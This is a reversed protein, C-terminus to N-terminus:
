VQRQRLLDGRVARGPKIALQDRGLRLDSAASKTNLDFLGLDGAGLMQRLLAQRPSLPGPDYKRAIENRRQTVTLEGTGCCGDRMARPEIMHWAVFTVPDFAHVAFPYLEGRAAKRHDLMSVPEFQHRPLGREVPM